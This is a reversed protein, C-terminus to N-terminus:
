SKSTRLLTARVGNERGQEKRGGVLLLLYHADCTELGLWSCILNQYGFPGNQERVLPLDLM